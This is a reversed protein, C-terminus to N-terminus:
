SNKQYPIFAPGAVRVENQFESLFFTESPAGTLDTLAHRVDGGNGVVDYGKYAKAYAKELLCVWTENLVSSAGLLRTEGQENKIFPLADDIPIMKWNGEINLAFGYCGKACKEQQLILRLVRNQYEALASVASLFYSNNLKGQVVDTPEIGSVIVNM